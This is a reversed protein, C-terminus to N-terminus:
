SLGFRSLHEARPTDLDLTIEHLVIAGVGDEAIPHTAFLQAAEELDAAEVVLYGAIIESAETFPGDTVSGARVVKSEPALGAAAVLKGAARLEEQWAFYRDIGSAATEPAASPETRSFTMLGVFRAV